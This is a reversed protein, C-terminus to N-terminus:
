INGGNGFRTPKITSHGEWELSLLIFKNLSYSIDPNNVLYIYYISARQLLMITKIEKKRKKLFFFTHKRM